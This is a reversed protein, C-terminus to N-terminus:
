LREPWHWSFGDVVVSGDASLSKSFPPEVPPFITITIDGSDSVSTIIAAMCSGDSSAVVHIIRGVSPVM